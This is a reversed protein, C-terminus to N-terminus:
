RTDLIWEPLLAEIRDANDAAQDVAAFLPEVGAGESIKFVGALLAEVSELALHLAEFLQRETESM